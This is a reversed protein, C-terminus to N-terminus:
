KFYAPSVHGQLQIVLIRSRGKLDDDLIALEGAPRTWATSRLTRATKIEKIPDLYTISQVVYISLAAAVGAILGPTMGFVTMVITIFWIGSYELRDYSGYSDYVGELVLDLGVHLLLTGAMCRPIFTALEPGYLFLLAVLLAVLLTSAKGDGKSKAFLLSISYSFYNPLGVYDSGFMFGVPRWHAIYLCSM